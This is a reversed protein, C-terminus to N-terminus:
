VGRAGSSLPDGKRATARGQASGAAGRRATAAVVACARVDAGAARLARCAEALSAGTTVLDDVVVVPLGPPLARRAALSGRLNASRGAADLGAQDARSRAAVLLPRARLGLDRAAVAAVRRAHDHGRARVAAPDSPVPVLLTRRDLGRECTATRVASALSRGLPGALALRGAEKHALLVARVPGGYAVSATVRPLGPPCPSPRADFPRGALVQACEPCLTRGATGCGACTRPLVLDLLDYLSRALLSADAAV